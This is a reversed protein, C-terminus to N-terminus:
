SISQLELRILPLVAIKWLLLLHFSLWRSRDHKHNDLIVDVLSVMACCYLLCKNWFSSWFAAASFIVHNGALMCFPALIDSLTLGTGGTREWWPILLTNTHGRKPGASPGPAAKWAAATEAPRHHECRTQISGVARESRDVRRAATGSRRCAGPPAAWRLHLQQCGWAPYVCLLHPVSGSGVGGAEGRSWSGPLRSGSSPCSSQPVLRPAVPPSSTWCLMGARKVAVQHGQSWQVTIM